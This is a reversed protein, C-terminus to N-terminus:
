MRFRWPALRKVPLLQFQDRNSDDGGGSDDGYNSVCDSPICITIYFVAKGYLLATKNAIM